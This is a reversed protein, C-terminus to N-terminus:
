YVGGIYVVFALPTSSHLIIFNLTFVDAALFGPSLVLLLPAALSHCALSIRVFIGLARERKKM